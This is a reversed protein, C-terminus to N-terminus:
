KQHHRERKGLDADMAKAFHKWWSVDEGALKRALAARRSATATGPFMQSGTFVLRSGGKEPLIRYLFQSHRAEPSVRTNTWSLSEPYLKILRKRVVNGKRTFFTDTLILTDENLKRIKRVGNEGVIKLDGPDYNVCWRYAARPPFDFHQTFGYHVSFSKM